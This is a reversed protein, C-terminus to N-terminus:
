AVIRRCIFGRPEYIPIVGAEWAPWAPEVGTGREVCFLEKAQGSLLAKRGNNRGLCDMGRCLSGANLCIGHYSATNGFLRFYGLSLAQKNHQTRSRSEHRQFIIAIGFYLISSRAPSQSTAIGVSFVHFARCTQPKCPM